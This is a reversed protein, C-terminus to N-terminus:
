CVKGGTEKLHIELLKHTNETVVYGDTKYNEGPAHFNVKKMVDLINVAEFELYFYVNFYFYFDYKIYCIGAKKEQENEVVKKEVKPAKVKKEGKSVPALDAETKPGM